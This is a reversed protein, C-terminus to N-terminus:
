GVCVWVGGSTFGSSAGAWVRRACESFALFRMELFRLVLAGPFVINRIIEGEERFRQPYRARQGNGPFGLYGLM